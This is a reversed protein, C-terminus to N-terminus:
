ACTGGAGPQLLLRAGSPEGHGAVAMAAAAARRCIIFKRWAVAGEAPFLRLVQALGPCIRMGVLFLWARFALRRPPRFHERLTLILNFCSDFYGGEDPLGASAVYARPQDTRVAVFHDLSAGPDYALRWGARGVALSFALDDHPQAGRGRLRTDFRIGRLAEMRYAMNAGKLFDVPRMAGYGLHHNGVVRGFWGLRGVDASRREDFREGDHCRDRGGLGGLARDQAFRAAICAAWHPHAVTDDDVFAAVTSRCASLGANRAAVLGPAEVTVIRWPLGDQARGALAQRTPADDPRVVVLVDDPLRTQAALGDLCRLIQDPRRHTCVIVALSPGPDPSAAGPAGTM